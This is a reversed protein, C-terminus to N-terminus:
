YSIRILFSCGGVEIDSSVREEQEETKSVDNEQDSNEKNDSQNDNRGSTKNENEELSEKTKAPSEVLDKGVKM